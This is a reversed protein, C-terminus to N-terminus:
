INAAEEFFSYDEEPCLSEEQSLTWLLALAGVWDLFQGRRPKEVTKMRCM